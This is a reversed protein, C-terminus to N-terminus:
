ARCDSSAACREGKPEVVRGLAFVPDLAEGFAALGVEGDAVTKAGCGREWLDKRVERRVDKVAWNWVRRCGLGARAALNSGREACRFVCDDDEDSCAEFGPFPMCRQDFGKREEICACGPFAPDCSACLTGMLLPMEFGELAADM